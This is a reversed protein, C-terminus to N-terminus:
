IKTMEVQIEEIVDRLYTRSFEIQDSAIDKPVIFTIKSSFDCSYGDPNFKVDSHPAHEDRWKRVLYNFWFESIPPWKHTM